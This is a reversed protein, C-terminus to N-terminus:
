VVRVALLQTAKRDIKGSSTMLFAPITLIHRPMEHKSLVGSLKQLLTNCGEASLNPQEMILVPIEGLKEDSESAVFFRCESVASIKQEIQEPILKIGGCNIIHDIRGLWRFRGEPDLEVLDNTIVRQLHGYPLSLQLCGRHDMEPHIGPLPTFWNSRGSSNIKRLAVHTITETMGYTAYISGPMEMLQEELNQNIAAGGIILTGIGELLLKSQPNNLASFVQAPVMAAFDIRGGTPLHLLPNGSPQVLILQMGSVMARVVMMMGAIYDTSLCLLANLGPKLGLFAATMEASAVMDDKNLRIVKPIGTSGSTKVQLYDSSDAWLKLFESLSKGHQTQTYVENLGDWVVDITHHVGNLILSAPRKNKM